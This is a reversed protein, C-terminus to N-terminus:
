NFKLRSCSVPVSIPRGNELELCAGFNFQIEAVPLFEWPLDPKREGFGFCDGFNFQIEASQLFGGDVNPNQLGFVTM